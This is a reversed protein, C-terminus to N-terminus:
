QSTGHQNTHQAEQISTTSIANWMTIGVYQHIHVNMYIRMEHRRIMGQQSAYAGSQGLHVHEKQCLWRAQLCSHSTAVGREQNSHGTLCHKHTCQAACSIDRYAQPGSPLHHTYSTERTTTQQTVPVLPRRGESGCCAQQQPQTSHSHHTHSLLDSSSVLIM